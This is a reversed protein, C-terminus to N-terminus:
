KTGAPTRETQVASRMEFRKTLVCTTYGAPAVIDSGRYKRKVRYIRMFACYDNSNDYSDAPRARNPEPNIVFPDVKWQPDPAIIQDQQSAVSPTQTYSM